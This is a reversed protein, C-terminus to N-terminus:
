FLAEFELGKFEKNNLGEWYGLFELTNRNRMWNQILVTPRDGETKAIDSICIFDEGNETKMRVAVDQVYIKQKM